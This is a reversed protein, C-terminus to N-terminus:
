PEQYHNKSGIKGTLADTVEMDSDLKALVKQIGALTRDGDLWTTAMAAQQETLKAHRLLMRAKFREPLVEPTIALEYKDWATQVDQIYESFSRASTRAGQFILDDLEM